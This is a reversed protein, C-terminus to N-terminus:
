SLRFPADGSIIKTPARRATREASVSNGKRWSLSKQYTVPKSWGSATAARDAARLAEGRGVDLDLPDGVPAGFPGVDAYGMDDIFIIVVNPPRDAKTAAHSRGPSITLVTLWALLLTTLNSRDM